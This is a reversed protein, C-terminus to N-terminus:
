NNNENTKTKKYYQELEIDLERKLEARYAKKLSRNANRVELKTDFDAM